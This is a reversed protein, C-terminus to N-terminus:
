RAGTTTSATRATASSSTTSTGCRWGCPHRPDPGQLQQHSGALDASRGSRVRRSRACGESSTGDAHRRRCARQQEPEPQPLHRLGARQEGPQQRAARLSEHCNLCKPVDVVDRRVADGTVAQVVSFTPRQVSETEGDGDLDITQSFYGQLAVARMTAGEPYPASSFVATYSEPTGTLAGALSALSVTTPQGASNGLNNYDVPEEIGDQPLAYAVLFSPGGTFGEPPITSLDLPVGDQNIHFTVVPQNSENVTVEEIVYEFNALGEPVEPNNPTSNETLHNEVIEEPEHCNACLENTPQTAM